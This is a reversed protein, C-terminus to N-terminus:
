PMLMVRYFNQAGVMPATLTTDGSVAMVPSGVDSWPLPQPGMVSTAQLQYSRGSVSDIHIVVNAGSISFSQIAPVMAADLPVLVFDQAGPNGLGDMLPLIFLAYQAMSPSVPVPITAAGGQIIIGQPATLTDTAVPNRQGGVVMQDLGPPTNYYEVSGDGMMVSGPYIDNNIVLMPDGLLHMNVQIAPGIVAGGSLWNIAAIPPAGVGPMEFGVHSVQGPAVTVGGSWQLVTQPPTANYTINFNLWTPSSFPWTIIHTGNLIIQLGDATATTTNFLDKNEGTVPFKLVAKALDLPLPAAVARPDNLPTWNILDQGFVAQDQFHTTSTKWGFVYTNAGGVTPMYSLTVWFTKANAFPGGDQNFCSPVFPYFDYEWIQTDNGVISGPAPPNPNFFSEQLGPQYLGFQYHPQGAAASQPPYFVQSCLLSGPHSYPSNPLSKPIDTWLSVQFLANTDVQDNLWSGWIRFGSIPATIRCLFDDGIITPTLAWVDLGNTSTDPPQIIGNATAGPDCVAGPPGGNIQFAFDINNVPATPLPNFLPQWPVLLNGSTDVKGWVGADNWHNTSSKWGWQLFDAPPSMAAVSVWYVKSNGKQCFPNVAPVNFTYLWVVHDPSLSGTITPDYFHENATGTVLTPNAYDGPNYTQSWLLTNPHSPNGPTGAADDWISLVFTQGHPTVDGNISAWLQISTIPGAETCLFDDALTLLGNATNPSTANVDLGFGSYLDPNQLNKGPPPPPPPPQEPTTTVAFAMDLSRQAPSLPDFLEQWTGLLTSGSADTYGFVANDGSHIAATHWGFNVVNAGASVSLWYNTPSQTTGTQLFLGTPAAPDPYFNYQWIINDNGMISGLLPPDPDWFQQPTWWMSVAKYHGSIPGGPIFTQSWLLTGPHSAPNAATAPVDSWFGLTIPIGPIINAITPDQLWSAWIHIDTIYGTRTCPFDDALILPQGTGSGAPPQAALVDYGSTTRDPLQYYKTNPDNDWDAMATTAALVLWSVAAASFSMRLPVFLKNTPFSRNM